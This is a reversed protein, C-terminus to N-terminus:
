VPQPELRDFVLAAHVLRDPVVHVRPRAEGFGLRPPDLLEEAQGLQRPELAQPARQGEPEVRWEVAVLRHELAIGEGEM